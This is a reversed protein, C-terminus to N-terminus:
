LFTNGFTFFDTYLTKKLLSPESKLAPGRSGTKHCGVAAVDQCVVDEYYLTENSTGDATSKGITVFVPNIDAHKSLGVLKQLEELKNQQSFVDNLPQYHFAFRAVERSAALTERDRYEEGPPLTVVGRSGVLQSAVPSFFVAFPFLLM